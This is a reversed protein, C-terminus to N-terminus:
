SKNRAFLARTAPAKRTALYDNIESEQAEDVELFDLSKMYNIAKQLILELSEKPYAGESFAVTYLESGTHSFNPNYLDPELYNEINSYEVAKNGKFFSYLAGGTLLYGIDAFHEAIDNDNESYTSQKWFPHTRVIESPYSVAMNM